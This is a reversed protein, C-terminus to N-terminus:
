LVGLVPVVQLGRPLRHVAGVGPNRMTLHQGLQADVEASEPHDVPDLPRRGRQFVKAPKVRLHRTPHRQRHRFERSIRQWRRRRPQHSLRCARAPQPYPIVADDIDHCGLLQQDGDHTSPVSALDVASPHEVAAQALARKSSAPPRRSGM